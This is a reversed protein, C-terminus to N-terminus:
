KLESRYHVDRTVCLSVRWEVPAGGLSLAVRDVQLAPMGQAEGLLAADEAGLPVAKLRERAGAVTVNFRAAYLDYLNNPIDGRALGPFLEAPLVISEAIRPEGGLSRVRRIRIVASDPGLALIAREEPKSAAEEVSVVRSDPFEPEGRDPALRFFQFLIRPEDHRAVFTGRGQRRVLLNEATMADLAKRVTGQSVGLEAALQPEAPLMEGPHWEGRAIRDMLLQRVQRYLPTFTPSAPERALGAEM